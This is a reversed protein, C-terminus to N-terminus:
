LNKVLGYLVGVTVSVRVRVCKLAFAVVCGGENLPVKAFRAGM